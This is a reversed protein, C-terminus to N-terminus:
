RASPLIAIPRTGSSAGTRDLASSAGPSSITRYHVVHRARAQWMQVALDGLVAFGDPIDANPPAGPRPNSRGVPTRFELGLVVRCDAAFARVARARRGHRGQM